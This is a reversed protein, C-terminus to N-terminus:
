SGAGAFPSSFRLVIVGVVASALSGVTIGLKAENLGPFALDAIFLAVTFGIGALIAVGYIHRWPGPASAVGLRVTLWTAGFIGLQKGLFLGLAIGLPVPRLLDSWAVGTLSVGSSALAFLPVILYAVLPHWRSVLRDLADYPVAVAVAVGALTPHIGAAHLAWWLAPALLVVGRLKLAWLAIGLAVAALLWLLKVGSGYFLAIVLIGGLDDFIAVATLFMVLSKPVREKVLSLCALSFAIDTAMPIGWGNASPQGANFFLYVAAPAVMGGLAAFAPLLADKATRLERKIEMGVVFFFLTMLGDSIVLQTLHSGFLSRYSDALPSNAWAFALLAMLGLLVASAAEQAFFRSLLAFPRNM